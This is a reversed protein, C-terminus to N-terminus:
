RRGPWESALLAYEYTDTWEGKSWFDSLRHSERRMGLRECLRTSATNRPDLEAFIRHCAFHGFGLDILATTAETALRRRGFDPHVVWSLEAVTPSRFVLAVEGVVRGDLELVLGFGANESTARDALVDELEDRALPPSLLYESVDERGFIAHLDATDRPERSRLLLRETRIPLDPAVPIFHDRRVSDVLRERLGPDDDVLRDLKEVAEHLSGLAQHDHPDDTLRALAAEAQAVLTTRLRARSSV